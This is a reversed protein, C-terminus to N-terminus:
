SEEGRLHGAQRQLVGSRDGCEHQGGFGQNCFELALLSHGRHARTSAHASHAFSITSPFLHRERM